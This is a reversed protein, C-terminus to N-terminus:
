LHASWMSLILPSMGELDEKRGYNREDVRFFSDYLSFSIILLIINGM